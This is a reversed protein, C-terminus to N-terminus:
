FLRAADLRNGLGRAGALRDLLEHLGLGLDDEKVNGHGLRASHLKGLCKVLELVRGRDDEDGGVALVRQLGEAHVGDVVQHLRDLGVAELEREILDLGAGGLGLGGRGLAVGRDLADGHDLATALDEHGDVLNAVDLGLVVVGADVGVVVAEERRDAQGLELLLEGRVAEETHM